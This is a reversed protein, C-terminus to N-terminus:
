SDPASRRSAGAARSTPNRPPQTGGEREMVSSTEPGDPHSLLWDLLADAIHEAGEGTRNALVIVTLRRDPARRVATNFGTTRGNHHVVRTGGREDLRWGFGYPVTTGDALRAPTFAEELTKRSVLKTGYLAQDWRYYDMVSTYIGGDGLVASTLSQDADVFGTETQKYGYARRSVTSVGKEYAVTGDMGLPKFINESLFTAFDQGSVREVILALLAYGTNSYRHETGPTFYVGQQAQVLELVDRDKLPVTLDSPMLDEYDIVGSTHTLLHRVTIREGVKPFDPFFKKVPDDYALRGREKLIMIAMATFQKTVSALRYNTHDDAPTKEPLNALGYGKKFVIRGDRIVAVSAGPTNPQDFDRLLEDTKKELMDLPAVPPAALCVPLALVSLMPINKLFMGCERGASVSRMKYTATGNGVWKDRSRWSQGGVLIGVTLPVRERQRTM